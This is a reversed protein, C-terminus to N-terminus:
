RRTRTQQTMREALALFNQGFSFFPSSHRALCFWYLHPTNKLSRVDLTGRAQSPAKGSATTLARFSPAVSSSTILRSSAVNICFAVLSFHASFGKSVGAAISLHGFHFIFVQIRASLGKHSLLPRVLCLFCHPIVQASLHM